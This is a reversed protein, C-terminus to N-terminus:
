LEGGKEPIPRRYSSTTRPKPQPQEGGKSENLEKLASLFKPYRGAFRETQNKPSGVPRPVPGRAAQRARAPSRRWANSDSGVLQRASTRPFLRSSSALERGLLLEANTRQGGSATVESEGPTEKRKTRQEPASAETPDGYLARVEPNPGSLDAALFSTM